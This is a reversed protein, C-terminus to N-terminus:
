HKFPYFSLNIDPSGNNTMDLGNIPLDVKNLELPQNYLDKRVYTLEFVNPFNINNIKTIGGCNNGHAHILYHTQNLKNLMAIKESQSHEFSNDHIGHVELVIQKFKQLDTNSLSNIWSIEWGEIDMKLFIDNYKDILYKLNTITDSNTTGINKKVFNIDKTYHYPYDEITGDFAFNKEKPMKYYNIFDRSFSEENSVGASIYCDYDYNDAFVYGGDGSAGLRIKKGPHHYMLLYSFDNTFNETTNNYLYIIACIIAIIGIYIYLKRNYKVM